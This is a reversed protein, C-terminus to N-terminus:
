IDRSKKKAHRRPLECPIISQKKILRERSLLTERSLQRWKNPHQQTWPSERSPQCLTIVDNNNKTKVNCTVPCHNLIKLKIRGPANQSIHNLQEQLITSRRLKLRLLNTIKLLLNQPKPTAAFFDRKRRTKQTKAWAYINQDDPKKQKHHLSLYHASQNTYKMNKVPQWVIKLYGFSGYTHRVCPPRMEFTGTSRKHIAPWAWSHAEPSFYLTSKHWVATDKAQM